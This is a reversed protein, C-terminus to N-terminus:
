LAQLVKMIILFYHICLKAIKLPRLYRRNSINKIQGINNCHWTNFLINKIATTSNMGFLCDAQFQSLNLGVSFQSM